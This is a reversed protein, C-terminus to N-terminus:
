SHTDHQLWDYQLLSICPMLVDDTVINSDTDMFLAEGNTTWLYLMAMM